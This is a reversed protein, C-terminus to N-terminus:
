SQRQVTPKLSHPTKLKGQERLWQVADTLSELYNELDINCIGAQSASDYYHFQQAMEIAASNFESETQRLANSIDALLKGIVRAPKRM